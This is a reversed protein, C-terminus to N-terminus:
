KEVGCLPCPGPPPPPLHVGVLDLVPVGTQRSEERLREGYAGLMVATRWVAEDEPDWDVEPELPQAVWRGLVFASLVAACVLFSGLFVAWDWTM